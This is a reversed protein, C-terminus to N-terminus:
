EKLQYVVAADRGSSLLDGARAEAEAHTGCVRDLRWKGDRFVHTEWWGKNWDDTSVSM